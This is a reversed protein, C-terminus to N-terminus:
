LIQTISETLETIILKFDSTSIKKGSADLVYFSDVIDDGRTSIKAFYISLGLRNM